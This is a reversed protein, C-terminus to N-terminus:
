IQVYAFGMKSEFDALILWIVFLAFVFFLRQAKSLGAGEAFAPSAHLGETKPRGLYQIVEWGLLAIAIWAIPIKSDLPGDFIAILRSWSATWSPTAGNWANQILAWAKELPLSILLTPLFLFVFLIAGGSFKKSIKGAINGPKWKQEIFGSILVGTGNILGMAVLTLSLQHWLGLAIFTGLVAIIIAVFGPVYRRLPGLALPYFIYDQLWSSLSIHWRRWFDVLVTTQFPRNFNPRLNLGLLTAIGRAGDAYSSIDAWIGFRFIFAVLVAIAPGYSIPDSFFRTSILMLPAAFVMKKFLGQAFLLVGEIGRDTTFEIPNLLAPRLEGWRAIPGAILSPFFLAYALWHALNVPRDSRKNYLDILAGIQQLCFFCLSFSLILNKFQFDFTSRLLLLPLLSLIWSIHFAFRGYRGAFTKQAFFGFVSLGFLLAYSTGLLLVGLVLNAAAIGIYRHTKPILLCAGILLCSIGFFSGSFFEIM